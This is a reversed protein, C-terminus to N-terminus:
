RIEAKPTGDAGFSVPAYAPGADQTFATGIVARSAAASM